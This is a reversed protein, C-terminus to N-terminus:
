TCGGLTDVPSVGAERLRMHSPQITVTSAESNIAIIWNPRCIVVLILDDESGLPILGNGMGLVAKLDAVHTTEHATPINM